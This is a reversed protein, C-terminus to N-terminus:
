ATTGSGCLNTAADRMVWTSAEVRVAICHYAVATELAEIHLVSRGRGVSPLRKM